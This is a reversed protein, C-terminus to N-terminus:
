IQPLATFGIDYVVVMAPSPEYIGAVFITIVPPHNITPNIMHSEMNLCVRIPWSISLYM